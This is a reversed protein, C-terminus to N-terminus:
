VSYVFIIMPTSHMDSDATSSNTGLAVSAALVPWPTAMSVQPLPQSVCGRTRFLPAERPCPAGRCWLRKVSCTDNSRLNQPPFLRPPSQLTPELKKHPSGPHPERPRGSLGSRLRLMFNLSRGILQQETILSKNSLGCLPASFSTMPPLIGASYGEKHPPKRKSALPIELLLSLPIATVSSDYEGKCRLIIDYGDRCKRTNTSKKRDGIAGSSKTECSPNPQQGTRRWGAGGGGGLSFRTSRCKSQLAGPGAGPRSRSTENWGLYSLLPTAQAPLVATPIGIRLCTNKRLYTRLVDICRNPNTLHGGTRVTESRM